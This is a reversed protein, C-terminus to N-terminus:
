NNWETGNYYKKIIINKTPLKPYVGWYYHNVMVTLAADAEQELFLSLTTPADYQVTQEKVYLGATVYLKGIVLSYNTFDIKPLEEDGHYASMLEDENNIILCTDKNKPVDTFFVESEAEKPLAKEFFFSVSRSIDEPNVVITNESNDVDSSCEIFAMAASVVLAFSCTKFLYQKMREIISTKQIFAAAAPINCSAAM